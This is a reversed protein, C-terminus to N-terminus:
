YLHIAEADDEVLDLSDGDEVLLLASDTLNLLRGYTLAAKPHDLDAVRVLTHENANLAARMPRNDSVHLKTRLVDRILRMNERITSRYNDATVLVPTYSSMSTRWPKATPPLM